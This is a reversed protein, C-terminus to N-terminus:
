KDSNMSNEFPYKETKENSTIRWIVWHNNDMEKAVEKAMLIEIVINVGIIDGQPM